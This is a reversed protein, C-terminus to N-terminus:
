MRALRRLDDTMQEASVDVSWLLALAGTRDLVITHTTHDIMGEDGAAGHAHAQHIGYEAAIAEIATREGTVGTFTQDFQEVYRELREATDREPDVTVLVVRIDSAVDTPLRRRVEALKALTTPCADPCHTYGFYLVVISGQQASLCFSGATSELAFDRLPIPPTIATGHWPADGGPRLLAFGLVAILVANVAAAAILIRRM